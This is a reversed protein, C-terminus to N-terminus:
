DLLEGRLYAAAERSHPRDFFDVAPGHELLRGRHLFAIEQALRRAQAIDHTTMVVKIGEDTLTRVAQEVAGTAGPDLNATPEDLFIVEPALLWARALALRQQEGSSLVRAPRDALASLGFRTLAARARDKRASRSVGQAGLAHTLNALTSRRLMVPRQFVMVHRRVPLAAGPGEWVIRGRSPAILGHCLRLLLSKGAGNYGLVVLRGSGALTLDVDDILSTGGIDYGVGRLTLPLITPLARM